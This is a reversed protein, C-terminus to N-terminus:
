INGLTGSGFQYEFSDKAHWMIIHCAHRRNECGSFRDFETTTSGVVKPKRLPCAVELGGYSRSVERRTKPPVSPKSSTVLGAVIRYRYCEAGRGDLTRSLLQSRHSTLM